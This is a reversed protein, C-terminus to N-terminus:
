GWGEVVFALGLCVLGLVTVRASVKCLREDGEAVTILAGGVLVGLMGAVLLINRSFIM